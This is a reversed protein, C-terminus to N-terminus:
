KNSQKGHEHIENRHNYKLYLQEIENKKNEALSEHGKIILKIEHKLNRDVDKSWDFKFCFTKPDRVVIM